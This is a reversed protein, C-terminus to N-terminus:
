GHGTPRRHGDGALGALPPVPAPNEAALLASGTAEFFEAQDPEIHLLTMGQAALLTAFTKRIRRSRSVGGILAVDAPSVGPKVLVMVNECVADFLGALIAERQEGKNALHTMDTKLIVPCRGSLPASKEVDACVESAQAPTLEFRECLQRLFNGTGQSCRSNERLVELGNPRLELVSFGHGGISVVTAPRQGFLFRFGRAQAQKTPVRPLQVMRALRGSVAAGSLSTWDFEGLLELLRPAPEKHHEVLRRRGTRLEPGERLVEVVKITEAGVDIGLFRQIPATDPTANRDGQGDVSDSQANM